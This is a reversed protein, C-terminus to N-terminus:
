CPRFGFVELCLKGSGFDIIRVQEDNGRLTGAQGVLYPPMHDAVKEGDLRKLDGIGPQRLQLMLEEETASECDPATFLVNGTHLDEIPMSILEGGGISAIARPIDSVGM